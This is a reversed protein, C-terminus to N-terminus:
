YSVNIMKKTQSSKKAGLIVQLTKKGESVDNFTNNRNRVCKLFYELEKVFMQNREFNKAKFITKWKSQNNYFIKVDNSDTNWYLTGKTGRIKCSKFEPRAFYDLHLEGIIGNKFLMTMTSIDDATIELDSVKKTVSFIEKIDGFFWQLFDLEHIMTTAIGGGLDNRAAYGKRYDEYPHWDSLLSSSEVQASFVRGLKKEDIINKIKNICPHFRHDCGVLSIIKKNKVIKKLVDIGTISASIPKEIFVDLGNKALEISTKIHNSTENTVFAITPKHSLAEHISNVIKVNKKKRKKLDNRKTCIIVEMNKRALINTLHRKGISGYGVVLITEMFKM